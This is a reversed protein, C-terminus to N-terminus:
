SISPTRFFLIGLDADQASCLVAYQAKDYLIGNEAYLYPSNDPVTIEELSPCSGLIPYDSGDPTRFDLTSPFHIQRLKPVNGTFTDSVSQVGESITLTELNPLDFFAKKDIGIVPMDAITAPTRSMQMMAPISPSSSRVMIPSKTNMTRSLDMCQMLPRPLQIPRPSLWCNTYAADRTHNRFTKQM